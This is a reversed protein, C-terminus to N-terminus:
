PLTKDHWIEKVRKDRGCTYRYFKYRLKNKLYYHQHYEEAPYFNTSPIIDTYVVPFINQVKNLSQEALKKQEANSYFIVSRYQRGHDCFQANKATPDIHRWYFSLLQAYTIEKPNYTIEASEVYDTKGSSVLEYSPNKPDLGGDFGVTVNTVGPLKSFDSEVCWFCGGAFIAKEMDAYALQFNFLLIVLLIKRLLM